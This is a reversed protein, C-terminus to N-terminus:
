ALLAACTRRGEDNQFWRTESGVSKLAKRESLYNGNRLKLGLRCIQAMKALADYGSDPLKLKSWKRQVLLREKRRKENALSLNSGTWRFSGLPRNIYKFSKGSAALRVFYEFDMVVRYNTDIYFGEEILHRRFFAADTSIYCGYYLLINFRFAHGKRARQFRGEEDVFISDGYLTEAGPHDMAFRAVAHFAGPLYYEDANLWGVL